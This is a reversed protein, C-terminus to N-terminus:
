RSLTLQMTRDQIVKKLFPNEKAPELAIEQKQQLNTLYMEEQRRFKGIANDINQLIKNATEVIDQPTTNERKAFDEKFHILEKPFLKLREELADSVKTKGGFELDGLDIRIDGTKYGAYQIALKTKYYLAGPIFNGKEQEEMLYNKRKNQEIDEKILKELFKYAETARLTTNEKIGLDKESCYFDIVLGRFFRRQKEKEEAINNNESEKSKDTNAIEKDLQKIVEKERELYNNYIRESAKDAERAVKFLINPEEELAKIWSELYASHNNFHEGELKVNLRAQTFVSCLEAVLEEKAYDKSGFTNKIDRNLRSEHGTSHGMEHLATALFSEESKFSERLPLVIKDESPSYFARDQAIFKIPCESSAMVDNIIESVQSKDPKIKELPPIGEIQNANFVTFYKYMKNALQREVEIMEGTKEDKEKVKETSIVKICRIGKEGKKVKWGNEKAQNFTLWRPDDYEKDIAENMLKFKNLGRYMVDSIPNQPRLASVNWDKKFIYGKKMNEILKKVLKENDQRIIDVANM